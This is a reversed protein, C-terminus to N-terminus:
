TERRYKKIIAVGSSTGLREAGAAIMAMATATDRIGGSAKVAAGSGACARLLKVDAVTAGGSAFGTSTKVFAAGGAVALRCARKKEERNLLCTELIAKVPKGDAVRVIERLEREVYADDGQKLRGINLVVDIEAAGKDMASGTEFCKAETSAAGLPFGAVSVVAIGTGSLLRCACPVWSGHICVGFFGNERAEACLTEIDRAVADQRLLTHDIYSALDNLEM